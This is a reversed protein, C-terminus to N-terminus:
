ARSSSPNTHRFMDELLGSDSSAAASRDPLGVVSNFPGNSILSSYELPNIHSNGLREPMSARSLSNMRTDYNLDSLSSAGSFSPGERPFQITGAPPMNKAWAAAQQQQLRLLQEHTRLLNSNEYILPQAPSMPSSGYLDSNSMPFANSPPLPTNGALNYHRSLTALLGQLGGPYGPPGRLFSPAQHTHTGEYTTVVLGPDDFCREVRKRV